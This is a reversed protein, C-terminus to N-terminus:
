KVDVATLVFDIVAGTPGTAELKVLGGPVDDSFYMKATGTPAAGRGGTVGAASATTQYVHCSYTKGMATVDAKGADTVTSADEKAPVNETRSQPPNDHGMASAKTVVTVTAADPTVSVLTRTMEVHVKATGMTLDASLTASTGPKCKSWAAYRPSDVKGGAADGARAAPAAAAMVAMTLGCARAMQNRFKMATAEM